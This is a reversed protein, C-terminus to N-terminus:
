HKPIAMRALMGAAAVIGGAVLLIASGGTDPLTTRQASASPPTQAVTSAPPPTADTPYVSPASPTAAVTSAAESAFADGVPAGEPPTEGTPTAGTSAVGPSINGSAAAVVDPFLPFISSSPGSASPSNGSGQDPPDFVITTASDCNNGPNPDYQSGAANCPTQAIAASSFATMCALITAFTLIAMSFRMENM